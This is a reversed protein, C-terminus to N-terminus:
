EESHTAEVATEPAIEKPANLITVSGGVKEIAAIATKSFAHATVKLKATLEGKGLIKVLDKKQLLGHTRMLEITIETAKTKKQLLKCLASTSQVINLEISTKLDEKRCYVTYLCRDVKLDSKVNTGQDQNLEKTGKQPHEM